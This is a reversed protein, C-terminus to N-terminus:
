ELFERPDAITGRIASAAVTAPSGMYIRASSDGMRGKFNRTSATICTENPGLVGLHGGGCAGCTSPTVIAGADSLAALTGDRLAERYIQQSGPTVILRVSPAIRRGQLVRAAIQLDELTGNACSGIFAQDIRIGAAESVPRSNDVVTDPFAVLPQLAGLDVKRVDLYNADADPSVPEFPEATRSRVYDLLMDDPDCVAFEASLEASMTTLTKRAALSLSALGPGGYEVNQNAHDGYQGAIQLFADKATVAPSLRGHLEYRITEGVRFWTEGMIASYMVDPEGVGRALCNLVGASCTHSDSCVLVTGPLGYAKDFVVQHSIGQDFGVDHVREIGFREVFKRGNRHAIAAHVTPAPVRHDFVVVVKRPDHLKRIERWRSPNFSNDIMVVTDVEVTVLDGPSVKRQKTKRAFIKEVTTMGM